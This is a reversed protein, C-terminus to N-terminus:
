LSQILCSGMGTAQDLLALTGGAEQTGGVLLTLIPVQAMQGEWLPITIARTERLCVQQCSRSSVTRCPWCFCTDNMFCLRCALPFLRILVCCTAHSSRLLATDFGPPLKKCHELEGFSLLFDRSYVIRMKKRGYLLRRM